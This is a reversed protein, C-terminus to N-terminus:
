TRMIDAASVVNSVGQVTCIADYVEDWKVGPPVEELLVSLSSRIPDITSYSVLVSFILTCVSSSHTLYVNESCGTFNNM